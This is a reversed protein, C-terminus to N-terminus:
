VSEGTNKPYASMLCDSLSNEFLNKPEGEVRGNWQCLNGEANFYVSCADGSIGGDMARNDGQLEWLLTCHSQEVRARAVTQHILQQVADSCDPRPLLVTFIPSLQQASCFLDGNIIAETDEQGYQYWVSYLMGRERLSACLDGASEDYRIVLMLHYLKEAEDLFDATVDEPQCFLIFASDPHERVLSLATQPQERAFLMWTYIGLEEGECIVAHYRAQNEVLQDEKVQLTVTWPINFGLRRENERIRQAGATCGNYGLNMGFTFLRDTDVHTVVDRVLGYYASNENQLMTQTAAFFNKQFRGASFQLAMDVLNRIGREPSEKIDKLAKKVVTAVLMRSMSNEM